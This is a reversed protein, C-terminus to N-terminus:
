SGSGGAAFARSPAAGAGQVAAPRAGRGVAAQAKSLAAGASSDLSGGEGM